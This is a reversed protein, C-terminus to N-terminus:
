QGPMAELLPDVGEKNLMEVLRILPLGILSSPDDGAMKSFLAVGLGECKFSGACDYPQETHLYHHIQANSLIRFQVSFSEVSTQFNGSGTNLLCLGTKFIIEKGSAARLQDVAREHTLPKGIAQHNLIAVQDSGIILTNPHLEALAQAKQIALRTVLDHPTENPKHSEDIEPSAWDFRLGLRALLQRRYISGSALLIPLM